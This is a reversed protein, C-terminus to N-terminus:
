SSPRPIRLTTHCTILVHRFPILTWSGIEVPDGRLDSAMEKLVEGMGVTNTDETGGGTLDGIGKGSAIEKGWDLQYYLSVDAMSPTETDFLWGRGKGEALWDEFLGLQLDLRGLNGDVKKELKDADLVHGILGARDRGFQTRWVSSPILGTTVRFFPRDIWFSAFGRLLSRNRRGTSKDVPYVSGYGDGELFRSELAEVILSTDCYVDRGIALIPIKRYTVGFASALLPRPMMSPVPIYIYPLSKLTLTLRVKHTFPSSAYGFLLIPPTSAM